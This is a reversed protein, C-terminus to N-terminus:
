IAGSKLADLQIVSVDAMRSLYDDLFPKHAAGYIVLVRGGPHLAAVARVRAAIKLNRNEWLGLRSRDTGSPLHTRLFVSWQADVDARSYRPSNLHVYVPWLDGKELCQKLLADSEAYIPAKSAAALLANGPFDKELQPAIRAYAELDEFDDVPEVTQLGLRRALPAVLSFNENVEACEADLLAALDAPLATQARKEEDTLYSWQLAASVPDYAAAMWLALSARAQATWAEPRLRTLASVLEAERVAAAEPSVNVAPLAARALDRHRKAFGDLVEGYLPGAEKRLELERVRTGPLSEICLADPRFAALEAMLRDLMAPKFGKEVQRLHFTALVLIRARASSPQLAQLSAVADPSAGEAKQAVSARTGPRGGSSPLSFAALFLGAVIAVARVSRM